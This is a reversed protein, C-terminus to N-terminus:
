LQNLLVALDSASSDALLIGFLFLPPLGKTLFDGQIILTEQRTTLNCRELIQFM